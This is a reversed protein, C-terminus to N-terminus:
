RKILFRFGLNFNSANELNIGASVSHGDYSSQGSPITTKNNKNSYNLYFLNYFGAELQFWKNVEFSVGPSAGVGISWGKVENKYNQSENTQNISSYTGTFHGFASFRKVIEWYQRLFIGGGSNSNTQESSSYANHDHTFNLQLGVITNQKVATGVSPSINYSSQKSNQGNDNKSSSFGLNGGLWLSGKTIQANVFGLVLFNACILLYIKKM